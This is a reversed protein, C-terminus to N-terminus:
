SSWFLIVILRPFANILIKFSSKVIVQSKRFLLGFFLPFVSVEKIIGNKYHLLNFQLAFFIWYIDKTLKSLLIFAQRIKLYQFFLKLM